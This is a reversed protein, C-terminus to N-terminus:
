MVPRNAVRGSSWTSGEDSPWSVVARSLRPAAAFGPTVGCTSGPGSAAVVVPEAPSEDDESDSGPTGDPERDPFFCVYQCPIAPTPTCTASANAYAWWCPMKCRSM